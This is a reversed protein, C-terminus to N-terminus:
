FYHYRCWAVGWCKRLLNAINTIASILQETEYNGIGEADKDGATDDDDKRDSKEDGKVDQSLPNEADSDLFIRNPDELAARPRCRIGLGHEPLIRVDLGFKVIDALLKGFTADM